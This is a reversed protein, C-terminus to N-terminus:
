GIEPVGDRLQFWVELAHVAALYDRAAARSIEVDRDHVIRNRMIRLEDFTALLSKGIADDGLRNRAMQYLNPGRRGRTGNDGSEGFYSRLTTELDIWSALVASRPDVELLRELHPSAVFDSLSEDLPMSDSELSSVDGNPSQSAEVAPRDVSEVARLVEEAQHEFEVKAQWAQLTKIQPIRAILSSAGSAVQKRGVIFVGAVVAPWALTDVISSVLEMWNVAHVTAYSIYIM